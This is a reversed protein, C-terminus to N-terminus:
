AMHHRWGAKHGLLPPDFLTKSLIDFLYNSNVIGGCFEAETAITMGLMRPMVWSMFENEPDLCVQIDGEAVLQVNPGGGCSDPSETFFDLDIDLIVLEHDQCSVAKILDETSEYCRVVHKRGEFDVFDEPQEDRQKQVVHIDGILNLYAAALIHGDNACHLKEWCFIAVAKYDETDLEHLWECELDCPPCLDQHWDLSVLTPPNPQNDQENRWKLWYFFAFRHDQVIAVEIAKAADTPHAIIDYYTGPPRMYDDSLM